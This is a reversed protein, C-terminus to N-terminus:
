SLLIMREDVRFLTFLNRPSCIEAIVSGIVVRLGSNLTFTMTKARRLLDDYRDEMSGLSDDDQAVLRGLGKSM